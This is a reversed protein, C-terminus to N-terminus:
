RPHLRCTASAPAPDVLHESAPHGGFHTSRGCDRNDFRIVRLGRAALQECFENPWAIMQGGLGMILLLPEGDPDGIEEFCIEIGRVRCLQERGAVATM